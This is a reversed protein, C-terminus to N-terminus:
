EHALTTFFSFPKSKIKYKRLQKWSMQQRNSPFLFLVNYIWHIRVMYLCFIGIKKETVRYIYICLASDASMVRLKSIPPDSEWSPASQSISRKIGNGGWTVGWPSWAPLCWWSQGPSRSPCCWSPGWAPVALRCSTLHAVSRVHQVFNENTWM